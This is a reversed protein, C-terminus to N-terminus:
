IQENLLISFVLINRLWYFISFGSFSILDKDRIIKGCKRSLFRFNRWFNIKEYIKQLLCFKNTKKRM